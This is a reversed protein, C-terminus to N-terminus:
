LTKVLYFLGFGILIILIMILVGTGFNPSIIDITSTELVEKLNLIRNKEDINVNLKASAQPTLSMSKGKEGFIYTVTLYTDFSNTIRNQHLNIPIVAKKGKKLTGQDKFEFFQEKEKIDIKYDVDFHNQNYLVLNQKERGPEFTLIAPSIAISQAKAAPTISITLLFVFFLFIIRKM